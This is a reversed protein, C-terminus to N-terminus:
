RSMMGVLRPPLVGAWVVSDLLDLRQLAPAEALAELDRATLVVGDLVLCELRPLEALVAVGGDPDAPSPMILKLSRLSRLDRLPTLDRLPAEHVELHALSTTDALPALSSADAGLGAITLSRLPSRALTPVFRHVDQGGLWATELKALHGSADGVDRPPRFALRRVEPFADFGFGRMGDLQTLVLDHVTASGLGGLDTDRVGALALARLGTADALSSRNVLESVNILALTALHPLAALPALDIPTTSAGSGQGDCLVSRLGIRLAAGTRCGPPAHAVLARITAQRFPRLPKGYALLVNPVVEDFTEPLLDTGPIFLRDRAWGDLPRGVALTSGSLFAEFLDADDLARALEIGQRLQAHDRTLLLTRLRAFSRRLGAPPPAPRTGTRANAKRLATKGPPHVVPHLSEPISARTARTNSLNLSRLPRKALPGLERLGRCGSLDVDRLRTLASLPTLDTLVPSHVALTELGSWAAAAGIDTLARGRIDVETAGPVAELGALSTLADGAVRLRRVGPLESGALGAFSTLGHVWKVELTELAPLHLPVLTTGADSRWVQLVRLKTLAAMAEASPLQWCAFTELSTLPALWDMDHQNTTLARLRGLARSPRPLPADDVTLEELGTAGSVDVVATSPLEYLDLKRLSAPLGRLAVLAATGRVFLDHLATLPALDLERVAVKNLRISTLRGVAVLEALGRLDEVDELHLYRLNPLRLLPGLDVPLLTEPAPTWSRDPHPNGTGSYRTIGARLPDAATGEPAAGLLAFMTPERRHRPHRDSWRLPGARRTSLGGSVCTYGAFLQDWDDLTGHEALDEIAAHVQHPDDTSLLEIRREQDMDAVREM